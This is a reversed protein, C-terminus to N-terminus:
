AFSPPLVVKREFNKTECYRFIENPFVETFWFFKICLFPIDSFETLFDKDWHRYFEYYFGETNRFFEPISFNWAFSPSAERNQRFNKKEWLVSFVEGPFWETNWFFEPLYFYKISLLPPPLYWSKGDFNKDWQVSINWQLVSQHKLFIRKDFIKMCLLPPMKTNEFNSIKQRVPGFRFAKSLFGETKRFNEPISFFYPYSPAYWSKRYFIQQRVTGFFKTPSGKQTGSFNQYRFINPFLSPPSFWLKGDFNKQRM